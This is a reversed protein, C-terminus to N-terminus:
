NIINTKKEARQQQHAPRREVGGGAIRRATSGAGCAVGNL